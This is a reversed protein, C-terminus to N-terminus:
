KSFKNGAVNILLTIALYIIIKAFLNNDIVNGYVFIAFTMDIAAKKLCDLTNKITVLNLCFQQCVVDM